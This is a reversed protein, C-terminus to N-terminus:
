VTVGPKERRNLVLIQQNRLPRLKIRSILMFGRGEDHKRLLPSGGERSALDMEQNRRKKVTYSNSIKAQTHFSLIRYAHDESSMIVM